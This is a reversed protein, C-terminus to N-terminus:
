RVNRKVMSVYIVLIVYVAYLRISFIIFSIIIAANVLLSAIILKLISAYTYSLTAWYFGLCTLLLLHDTHIRGAGLVDCAIFIDCSSSCSGRDVQRCM